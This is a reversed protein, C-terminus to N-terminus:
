EELFAPTQDGVWAGVINFDFFERAIEPSMGWSQLIALVKALDYILFTNNFRHGIGVIAADYEPPDLFLLEEGAQEAWATRTRM